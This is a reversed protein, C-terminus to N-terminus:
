GGRGLVQLHVTFFLGSSADVAFSIMKIVKLGRPLM